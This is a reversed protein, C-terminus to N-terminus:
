ADVVLGMARLTSLFEDVGSAIVGRDGEFTETAWSVRAEATFTGQMQRRLLVGTGCLVWVPGDPLLGVIVSDGHEVVAADPARRLETTM